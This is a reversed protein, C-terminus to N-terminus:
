FFGEKLFPELSIEEPKPQNPEMERQVLEGKEADFVWIYNEM